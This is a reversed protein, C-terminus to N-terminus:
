YRPGSKLWSNAPYFSFRSPPLFYPISHSLWFSKISIYVFLTQSCNLIFIRIKKKNYNTYKVTILFYINHFGDIFLVFSEFMEILMEIFVIKWNARAIVPPFYYLVGRRFLIGVVFIILKIIFIGWASLKQLLLEIEIRIILILFAYIVIRLWNTNLLSIPTHFLLKM